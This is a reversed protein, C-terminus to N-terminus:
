EDLAFRGGARVCVVSSCISHVNGVVAEASIGADAMAHVMARAAGEALPATIHHADATMGFGAVEAYITAGRARATEWPELVVMASGEGLILGQRNLSFPRCTDPSVVRLAEWAKLVGPSFPAEAGGAIAVPAMGSRVMWFAQGIAHASSACATSVTYAPGRLGFEMAIHSAPANEMARPITMPNFRPKKHLYLDQYGADETLTGGLCSGTVIAAADRLAPTWAIAADSMAQRAAVLGFQAFRDLLLLAKPEFHREPDFGEVAARQRFRLGALEDSPGIASRGATLTERFAGAELGGPAVVGIGTIAVRRM